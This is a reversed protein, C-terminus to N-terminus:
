AADAESDSARGRVAELGAVDPLDYFDGPRVEGGTARFIRGVIEAEPVRGAEYRSVASTRVSIAEAFESQTMGRNTRWTRLKM